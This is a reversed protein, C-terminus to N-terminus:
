LQAARFPKTREHFVNKQFFTPIVLEVIGDNKKKGKEKKQKKKQIQSNMNNSNNNLNNKFLNAPNKLTELFRIGQSTLIRTSVSVPSLVPTAAHWAM